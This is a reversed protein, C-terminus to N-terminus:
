RGRARRERLTAFLVATDAIAVGTLHADRAAFDAEIATIASIARSDDDRAIAEIAAAARAFADGGGQMAGAGRVAQPDDGVVLAAIAIAYWATPSEGGDTLLARVREAEEVGGGGLVAAKLMGVLRGYSAPPALGYSEWYLAAAERFGAPAAVGALLEAQAAAEVALARELVAQATTPATM